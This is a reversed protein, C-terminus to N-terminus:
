YFISQTRRENRTLTPEQRVQFINTSPQGALGMTMMNDNDFLSIRRRHQQVPKISLRRGADTFRKNLMPEVLSNKRLSPLRQNEKAIQNIKAKPTPSFGQKHTVMDELFSHNRLKISNRNNWDIGKSSLRLLRNKKRNSIKVEEHGSESEYEKVHHTVDLILVKHRHSNRYALFVFFM